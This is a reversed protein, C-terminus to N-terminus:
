NKVSQEWLTVSRSAGTRSVLVRGDVRWHFLLYARVREIFMARAVQLFAWCPRSVAADQKVSGCGEDFIM